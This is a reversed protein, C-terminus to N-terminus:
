ETEITSPAIFDWDEVSIGADSSLTIVDKGVTLPLTYKNQSELTLATEDKWIFVDNNSLYIKVSLNSVTQPILICEYQAIADQKVSESPTYPDEFVTVPFPDKYATVPYPNSLTGFGNKVSFTTNVNTGIIQISVIPNDKIGLSSYFESKLTLSLILKSFKHNLTVNILSNTQDYYIPNTNVPASPTVESSSYLFDSEKVNEAVAQDTCVSLNIEDTLSSNQSNYPSYAYVTVPDTASKWLMQESPTWASTSTTADTTKTVDVNNYSYYSDAANEVFLGLESLDTIEITESKVMMSSVGANVRIVRDEPLVNYEDKDCSSLGTAIASLIIIYQYFKM